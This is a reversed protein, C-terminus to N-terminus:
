SLKGFGVKVDFLQQAGSGKASSQRVFATSVPGMSLSAPISRVSVPRSYSGRLNMLSRVSLNQMSRRGNISVVRTVM